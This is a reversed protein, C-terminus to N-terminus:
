YSVQYIAASGGLYLKGDAGAAISRTAIDPATLTLASQTVSQTALTVKGLMAASDDQFYVNGDKGVVLRNPYTEPPLSGIETITGGTTVKAIKDSVTNSFADESMYLNGDPAAVIYDTSEGASIGSTYTALVAGATSVKAVGGIYTVWLNGDTGAAIGEPQAGNPFGGFETVAGATTIRGVRINGYDTFWINGDGGVAMDGIHASAVPYATVVGATTIKYIIGGFGGTWLNGDPGVIIPNNQATGSVAFTTVAGATTAAGVAAGEFETFWIRADPGYVLGYINAGTSINSTFTQSVAPTVALPTTTSSGGSCATLALAALFLPLSCKM